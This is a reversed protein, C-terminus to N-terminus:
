RVPWAATDCARRAQSVLTACRPARSACRAGHPRVQMLMAARGIDVMCCAVAGKQLEGQIQLRVKCTDLPITAVEATCASIGAALVDVGFSTKRQTM